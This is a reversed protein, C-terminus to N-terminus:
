LFCITYQTDMPSFTESCSSATPAARDFSTIAASSPGISHVLNFEVQILLENTDAEISAASVKLYFQSMQLIIHQWNDHPATARLISM